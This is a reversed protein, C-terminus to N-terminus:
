LIYLCVFPSGQHVLGLPLKAVVLKGVLKQEWEGYLGKPKERVREAKRDLVELELICRNENDKM